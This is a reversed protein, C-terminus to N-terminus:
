QIILGLLILNYESFYFGGKYIPGSVPGFLLLKSGLFVRIFCKKGSGFRALFYPGFGSGPQFFYVRGLGLM